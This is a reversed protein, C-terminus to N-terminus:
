SVGTQECIKQECNKHGKFGGRRYGAFHHIEEQNERLFSRLSFQPCEVLIAFLCELFQPCVSNQVFPRKQIISFSRRLSKTHGHRVAKRLLTWLLPMGLNEGGALPCRPFCEAFAYGSSVRLNMVKLVKERCAKKPPECFKKLTTELLTTKASTGLLHM